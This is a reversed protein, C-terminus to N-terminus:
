STQTHSGYICLFCYSHLVNGWWLVRNEWLEMTIIQLPQPILHFLQSHELFLGFIEPKDTWILM